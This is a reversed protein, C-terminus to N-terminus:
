VLGLLIRCFVARLPCSPTFTRGQPFEEEEEGEEAM